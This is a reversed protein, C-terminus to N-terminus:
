QFLERILKTNCQVSCYIEERDKQTKSISIDLLSVARQDEYGWMRGYM